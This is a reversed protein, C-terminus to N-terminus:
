LGDLAKIPPLYLTVQAKVMDCAMRAVPHRANLEELITSARMAVVVHGEKRDRPKYVEDSDSSPNSTDTLGATSTQSPYQAATTVNEEAERADEESGKMLDNKSAALFSRSFCKNKAAPGFCPALSRALATIIGLNASETEM